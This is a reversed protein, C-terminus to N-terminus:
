DYDEDIFIDEEEGTSAYPSCEDFIRPNYQRKIATECKECVYACFTGAADVLEHRPLDSGCITTLKHAIQVM